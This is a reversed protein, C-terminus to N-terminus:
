ETEKATIDNTLALEWGPVVAAISQQKDRYAEWEAWATATLAVRYARLNVMDVIGNSAFTWEPVLADVADDARTHTVRVKKAALDLVDIQVDWTVAM